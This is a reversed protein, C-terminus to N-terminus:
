TMREFVGDMAVSLEMSHTDCFTHQVGLVKVVASSPSVQGGCKACGTDFQARARKIRAIGAEKLYKSISPVKTAALIYLGNADYRANLKERLYKAVAEAMKPTGFTNYRVTVAGYEHLIERQAPTISAHQYPINKPGSDTMEIRVMGTAVLAAERDPATCQVSNFHAKTLKRISTKHCRQCRWIMERACNPEGSDHQVDMSRIYPAAYRPDRCVWAEVQKQEPIAM